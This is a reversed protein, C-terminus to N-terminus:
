QTSQHQNLWLQLIVIAALQKLPLFGTAGLLPRVRDRNLLRHCTFGEPELLDRALALSFSRSFFLSLIVPKFCRVCEPM